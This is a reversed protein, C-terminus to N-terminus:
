RVLKLKEYATMIIEETTQWGICSDTVSVGYKLTSRDFGRLDDEVINRVDKRMIPPNKKIDKYLNGTAYFGTDLGTVDHNNSLLAQGLRIGLYGEIGTLLVKM